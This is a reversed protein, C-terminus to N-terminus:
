FYNIDNLIQIIILELSKIVITEKGATAGINPVDFKESCQLVNKFTLDELKLELIKRQLSILNPDGDSYKGIKDRFNSLMKKAKLNTTVLVKVTELQIWECNNPLKQFLEKLKAHKVLVDDCVYKLDCWLNRTLQSLITM